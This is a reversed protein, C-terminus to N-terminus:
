EQVADSGAYVFQAYQRSFEFLRGIEDFTLGAVDYMEVILARREQRLAALEARNEAFRVKLDLIKQTFDIDKM